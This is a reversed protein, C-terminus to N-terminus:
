QVGLLKCAAIAMNECDNKVAIIHVLAGELSTSFYSGVVGNQNIEYNWQIKRGPELTTYIEVGLIFITQSQFM